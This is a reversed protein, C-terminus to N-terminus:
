RKAKKASVLLMMPRRLEDKMQPVLDLMTKEPQPEVIGTILFGTQLLTNLYTTITKHYKVVREGLFVADRKGESFYRDVPWHARNGDSDYHWDQPGEATFVPHEVSFVFDGGLRLCKAVRRCIDGFDPTYHFALSSIAVDFSDPAFDMDEMALRRYAVNPYANKEKAVALMKESLDIGLVSAAGNEAAYLCHWGFGCGIDLVDKGTFDPLLKQLEHWEGAASLGEESRPFRSYADFFNENDYKNEKM